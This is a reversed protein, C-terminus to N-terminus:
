LTSQPTQNCRLLPCLSCLELKRINGLSIFIILLHERAGTSWLTSDGKHPCRPVPSGLLHNLSSCLNQSTLFTPFIISFNYLKKLRDMLLRWTFFPKFFKASICYEKLKFLNLPQEQLNWRRIVSIVWEHAGHWLSWLTQQMTFDGNQLLACTSRM